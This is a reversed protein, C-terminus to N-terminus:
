SRGTVNRRLSRLNVRLNGGGTSSKLMPGEDGLRLNDSFTAVIGELVLM